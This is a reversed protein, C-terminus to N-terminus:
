PNRAVIQGYLVHTFRDTEIVATTIGCDGCTAHHVDSIPTTTGCPCHYTLHPASM